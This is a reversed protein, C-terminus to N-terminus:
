AAAAFGDAGIGSGFTSAYPNYFGMGFRGTKLVNDALAIVAKQDNPYDMFPLVRVEAKKCDAPYELHLDTLAGKRGSKDAAGWIREPPTDWMIVLSLGAGQDPVDTMGMGNGGSVILYDFDPKYIYLGPAAAKQLGNPFTLTEPGWSGPRFWYDTEALSGIDIVSSGRGDFAFTMSPPLDSDGLWYRNRVSVSRGGGTWTRGFEWKGDRYKLPTDEHKEMPAGATVGVTCLKRALDMKQVMTLLPSDELPRIDVPRRDRKFSLIVDETGTPVRGGKLGKYLREILELRVVPTYREEEALACINRATDHLYHIELDDNFGLLDYREDYIYGTYNGALYNMKDYTYPAQARLPDASVGDLLKRAPAACATYLLGARAPAGIGARGKDPALTLSILSERGFAFAGTIYKGRDWTTGIRAEKGNVSASVPTGLTGPIYLATKERSLGAPLTVRATFEVPGAAEICEGPGLARGGATWSDIDVRSVPAIAGTTYLRFGSLLAGWGDRPYKDTFRVFVTSSEAAFPTLDVLTRGALTECDEYDCVKQWASNDPSVEVNFQTAVKLLLFACAGKKLDFRYTYHMHHDGVRTFPTFPDSGIERCVSDDEFLYRSEEPTNVTIEKVSYAGALSAALAWLLLVSLLIRM